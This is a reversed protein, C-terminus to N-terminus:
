RIKLLRGAEIEGVLVSRQALFQRRDRLEEVADKSQADIQLVRQEGGELLQELRADLGRKGGAGVIDADLGQDGLAEADDFAAGHV